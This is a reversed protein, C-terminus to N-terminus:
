STLQLREKLQAMTLKPAEHVSPKTAPATGVEHTPSDSKVHEPHKKELSLLNSWWLDYTADDVVSKDDDNYYSDKWMWVHWIIWDMFALDYELSPYSAVDQAYSPM